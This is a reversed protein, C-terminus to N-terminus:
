SIHPPARSGGNLQPPPDYYSSKYLNYSNPKAIPEPADITINNSIIAVFINQINIKRESLDYDSFESILTSGGCKNDECASCGCSSVCNCEVSQDGIYLKLSPEDNCNHVAVGQVLLILATTLLLTIHKLIKM